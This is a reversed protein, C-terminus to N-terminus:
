KGSACFNEYQVTWRRRASSRLTMLDNMSKEEIEPQKLDVEKMNGKILIEKSTSSFEYM